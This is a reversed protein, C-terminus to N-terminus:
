EILAEVEYDPCKEAKLILQRFEKIDDPRQHAFHNKLCEFGGDTGSTYTSYRYDHIGEYNFHPCFVCLKESM